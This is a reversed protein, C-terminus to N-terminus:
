KKLEKDILNRIYEIRVRWNHNKDSDKVEDKLFSCAANFEKMFKKAQESVSESIFVDEPEVSTESRNLYERFTKM